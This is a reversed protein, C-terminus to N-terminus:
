IFLKYYTGMLYLVSFRFDGSQKVSRRSTRGEMPDSAWRERGLVPNQLWNDKALHKSVAGPASLEQGDGQAVTHPCDVMLAKSFARNHM